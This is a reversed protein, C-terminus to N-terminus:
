RHSYTYTMIAVNGAVDTSSVVLSYSRSTLGLLPPEYTDVAANPISWASGAVTAARTSAATCTGWGAANLCDNASLVRTRELRFTLASTPLGSGADSVSGCAARGGCATALLQNLAASTAYATNPVPATITIAPAVTDLRVVQTDTATNGALDTATATLTQLGDTLTFSSSTWTGNTAVTATAVQLGGRTIRVTAGPEGTGRLTNSAANTVYDNTVAGSDTGLATIDVTTSVDAGCRVITSASTFSIPISLAAPSSWTSSAVPQARVQLNFGVQGTAAVGAFTTPTVISTVTGTAVAPVTVPAGVQAGTDIRNLTLQYRYRQGVSTWGASVNSTGTNVCTPGTPTPPTAAGITGSGAVVSDTWYAATPVAGVVLAGCAVLTGVSVARAPRSWSRVDRRGRAAPRRALLVGAGLLLAIGLPGDVVEVVAGVHPISFLVRDVETVAYPEPDVQANADGQLVLQAGTARQEVAVARHTVREGAANAVSVVDGADVSRADVTAAVALSGSDITPAMSGSTFVLPKLGAVWASGVLAVVVAAVVAMRRLGARSPAPRRRATDAHRTM